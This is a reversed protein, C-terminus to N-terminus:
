KAASSTATERHAVREADDFRGFYEVADEFENDYLHFKGGYYLVTPYASVFAPDAVVKRLLYKADDYRGERYCLFAYLFRHALSVDELGEHMEFLTLADDDDGNMMAYASRAYREDERTEKTAMVVPQSDDEKMYGAIRLPRGVDAGAGKAETLFTDADELRGQRLLRFGIRALDEAGFSFGRFYTERLAFRKGDAAEVFPLRPDKVAYTLLDRPASFEILANDDTNLPGDGVFADVQGDGLLLLGFLDEPGEVKARELEGAISQLAFYRDLLARDIKVPHATGILLTDNSRPDPTFVMVHEFVAGFTRLLAHINEPALEYLQLWQLFVGGERLRSRAIRFFDVTFLSAAGTMWPNSPESIIVDYTENRTLLFNRGDDVVLRTRPDKAPEHNVHAFFRNAADLVAAEIEAVDLREIPATLVAGPTVGSGYGIVLVRKPNEHLFIPLLGSLVQTPMDGIDSADTKGNVKLSVSNSGEARDVTVSTAIGDHHYLVEGSPRWGESYVSKALYMRFLGSTWSRVDWRPGFLILALAAAAVILPARRERDLSVALLAGLGVQVGAALLIGREVGIVPLITFGALFSGGIAGVTNLAYARGVVTGPHAGGKPSLIRVVLPFVAGLALTSPLTVAAIMLFNTVYIHGMTVGHTIAAAHLWLPLRDIFLSALAALGGAAIETFALWRVPDTIRDVRRSILHAGAAIGVLFTTLILTFSYTSAGITMGIARTWLVELAMAAAGSLAFVHLALRRQYLHIPVTVVPELEHLQEDPTRERERVLLRDGKAARFLLVVTGAVVLDIAAALYVTAEIGYGPILVFGAGFSGAVAGFTNAAYLQGTRSALHTGSKVVAEALIPLTAGMATTPLLLIVLVLAFRLLAYGIAGNGFDLALYAQIPGMWGLLTPVLLGYVGVTTELVAFALLPSPLKPAWRGGLHSGLALGGMFVSLTTSVALATAGFVHGLMRTWLVQLILAAAGSLFFCLAVPM